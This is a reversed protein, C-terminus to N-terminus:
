LARLIGALQQRYVINLKQQKDVYKYVTAIFDNVLVAYLITL